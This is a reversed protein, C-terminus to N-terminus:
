PAGVRLRAPPRAAGATWSWALLLVSGVAIAIGLPMHVDLGRLGGIVIQVGDALLLLVAAVLVRWRGRATVVYGLAAGVVAVAVLAVLEGVRGHAAIADVDGTMDRGALFAQALVTLLHLGLLLRLLWLSVTPAPV